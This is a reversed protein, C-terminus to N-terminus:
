GGGGKALRALAGAVTGTDLRGPRLERLWDRFRAEDWTGQKSYLSLDTYHRAAARLDMLERNRAVIDHSAQSELTAILKVSTRDLAQAALGPQELYADLPAYALLRAATLSGIGPVGPLDDSSDGTLVRYDLFRERPFEIVNGDKDRPMTQDAFNAGDIVVKKVFSYVSVRDDILQLFDRDTSAIRVPMPHVQITLAAVLDDAETNQGRLIRVPLAEAAQIFQAIGELVHPENDIFSPQKERGTQYASFIARRRLPRGADFAVALSTVETEAAGFGPLQGGRAPVAAAGRTVFGLVSQTLGLLTARTKEPPTEAGMARGLAHFAAWALNNGDAILLV